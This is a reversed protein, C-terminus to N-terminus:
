VWIAQGAACTVAKKVLADCIAIGVAVTACSTVSPISVTSSTASNEFSSQLSDVLLQQRFHSRKQKQHWTECVASQQPRGQGTRRSLAFTTTLNGKPVPMDSPIEEKCPHYVHGFNPKHYVYASYELMVQYIDEQLKASVHHFCAQCCALPLMSQFGTNIGWPVLVKGDTQDM